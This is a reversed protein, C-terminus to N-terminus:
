KGGIKEGWLNARSIDRLWVEAFFFPLKPLIVGKKDKKNIKLRYKWTSTFNDPVM